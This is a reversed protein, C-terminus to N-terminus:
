SRMGAVVDAILHPTAPAMLYLGAWGDAKIQRSQAIALELGAKLQDEESDFAAFRDFVEQPVRVGPVQAFREAHAYSTLLLVGVIIRAKGRLTELSSLASMDYAPQTMVYDAGAALKRELKALEGKTDLAEPEFGTGITFHTQPNAQRGLSQGGFDLGANLRNHTLRIMEASDLDFVATSRPYTPSMKPPDGTVFLVNHIRRAHYGILRSQVAMLNLDRATFHPIFEIRDTVSDGVLDKMSQILDGPPMLPIGRSGDTVDIADALGGDALTKVIEAKKALQHPGTGRPPLMEVSVVFEGAFLKKSFPGNNLKEHPGAPEQQGTAVYNVTNASRRSKLFGEMERIHGDHVECCGGILRAGEDSLTRALRGMFEPNVRSMYRYGIREFGGANPMASIMVSGSTVEPAANVTRVFSEAERPTCCNVGVVSVGAEAARPVYELPDINWGDERSRKSLSMQLIIPPCNPINRAYGVVGVAHDLYEFTEFLLADVGEDVLATLQQGYAQEISKITGSAPGVSGLIFREHATGRESAVFCSISERALRVGARNLESTRGHIGLGELTPTNAGFTNTKLAMAGAQLYAIHVQRVLDANDVNLAEYVYNRESLRGTLEFLFSGTAGDGLLVGDRLAALFSNNAASLYSPFNSMTM